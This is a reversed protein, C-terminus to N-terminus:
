AVMEELVQVALRPWVSAREGTPKFSGLHFLPCEAYAHEVWSFSVELVHTKGSSQIFDFCAWRFGREQCITRALAFARVAFSDGIVATIIERKGSGSAFPQERSRIFRRLGYALNGNVVVRLDTGEESHVFEQWLLYGKQATIPKPSRATGKALPIGDGHFALHAEREADAKTKVLRVNQSAAGVAAKSIFPFRMGALVGAVDAPNTIVFTQPLWPTLFPVQAVKDDYLRGDRATPLSVKGASGAAAILQLARTRWPDFTCTRAYVADAKGVTQVITHGRRVAEAAVAAGSGQSELLCLLKM